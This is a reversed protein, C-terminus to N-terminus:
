TRDTRASKNCYDTSENSMLSTHSTQQPLAAPRKLSYPHSQATITARKPHQTTPTSITRSCTSAPLPQRRDPPTTVAAQQFPSLTRCTRGSHLTLEFLREPVGRLGQQIQDGAHRVRPTAGPSFGGITGCQHSAFTHVTEARLGPHSVPTSVAPVFANSAVLGAAGSSHSGSRDLPPSEPGMPRVPCSVPRPARCM